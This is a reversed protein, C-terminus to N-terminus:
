PQREMENITRRLAAGSNRATRYEKDKQYIARNMLNM